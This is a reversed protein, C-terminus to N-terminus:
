LHGVCEDNVSADQSEGHRHTIQLRLPRLREDQDGGLSGRLASASRRHTSHFVPYRM